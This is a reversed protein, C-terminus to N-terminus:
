IQSHADQSFVRTAWGDANWDIEVRVRTGITLRSFARLSNLRLLVIRGQDTKVTITQTDPHLAEIMGAVITLRDQARAEQESTISSHSDSPPSHLSGLLGVLILSVFPLASKM